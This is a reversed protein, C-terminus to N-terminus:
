PVTGKSQSSARPPRTAGGPPSTTDGLQLECPILAQVLPTAPDDLRDVMSDVSLRGLDSGPAVFTSVPPDSMAVADASTALGLVSMDRPISRGHATLGALLGPLADENLVLTATIQPHDRLLQAAAARGGAPTQPASVVVPTLGRRRMGHEFAEGTRAIPGYGVLRPSAIEGLLLAIHEHGLATLHDLGSEVAGAFDMDVYALGSPEATRGILAFPLDLRQLLPIRADEATVEMLLVADVLGGTVYEELQAPDNSVPWLVLNFGRASAAVAASTLVGLATNGLRHELAPFVLALNRTRNSALARALVNRRFGLEDMSAQVRARTAASVPKTGNVVFSVTAISVGAHRAVERMTAM